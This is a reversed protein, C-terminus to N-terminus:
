DKKKESKKERGKSRGTKDLALAVVNEKKFFLLLLFFSFSFFDQFITRSRASRKNVM